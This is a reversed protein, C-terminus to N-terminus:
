NKIRKVRTSYVVQGDQESAEVIVVEGERIVAIYGQNNGIRQDKSLIHIKKTPDKFMARPETVDWIIGVLEIQDLEYKELPLLPRIPTGEAQEAIRTEVPAFPDRRGRPDYIYPETLLKYDLVIQEASSQGLNERNGETTGDSAAEVKAVPSNQAVIVGNNGTTAQVPRLNKAATLVALLVAFVAVIAYILYSFFSEKKM